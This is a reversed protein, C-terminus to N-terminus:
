ASRLLCGRHPEKHRGHVDCCFPSECVSCPAIEKQDRYVMAPPLSAPRGVDVPHHYDDAEEEESAALDDTTHSDMVHEQMSSHSEYEEHCFNCILQGCTMGGFDEACHCMSYGSGLDTASTLCRNGDGGCDCCCTLAAHVNEHVDNCEDCVWGDLIATPGGEQLWIHGCNGCTWADEEPCSAKLMSEVTDQSYVDEADEVVRFLFTAGAVMKAAEDHDYVSTSGLNEPQEEPDYKAHCNPCEIGELVRVYDRATKQATTSM